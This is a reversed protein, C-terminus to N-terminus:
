RGSSRRRVLWDGLDTDDVSCTAVTRGYRDTDRQECTVQRQGIKDALAETAKAGCPWRTGDAVCTQASEPADIGHFRIRQGHIEITDGDVVSLGHRHHRRPRHRAM